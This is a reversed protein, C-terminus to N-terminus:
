NVEIKHLRATVAADSAFGLAEFRGKGGAELNSIYARTSRVQVGSQDFLNFTVTVDLSRDSGNAVIGVVAPMSGSRGFKWEEVAVRKAASDLVARRKSTAANLQSWFGDRAVQKPPKPAACYGAGFGAVFAVLVCLSLVANRSREPM